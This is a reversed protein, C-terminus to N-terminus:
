EGVAKNFAEKIDGLSAGKKQERKIFSIIDKDLNWENKMNNSKNVEHEWWPQDPMIITNKLGKEKNKFMKGAKTKTFFLNPAHLLIYHQITKTPITKVSNIGILLKTLYTSDGTEGYHVLGFMIFAQCDARLTQGRKMFGNFKVNFNSTTLDIYNM